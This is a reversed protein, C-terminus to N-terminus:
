RDDHRPSNKVVEIAECIAAVVDAKYQLEYGSIKALMQGKRTAVYRPPVHNLAYAVVDSTCADCTCCDRVQMMTIANQVVIDEMLNRYELAM